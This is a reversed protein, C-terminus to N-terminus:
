EGHATCLTARPYAAAPPVADHSKVARQRVKVLAVTSEGTSYYRPVDMPEVDARRTKLQRAALNTLSYSTERILERASYCIVLRFGLLVLCGSRTTLWHVVQATALWIGFRLLTDCVLRGAAVVGFFTTGAGGSKASSNPMKDRRLRGIRSWLNVQTTTRVLHTHCRPTLSRALLRVLPLCVYGLRHWAICYCM